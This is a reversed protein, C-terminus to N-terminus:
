DGNKNRITVDPRRYKRKRTWKKSEKRLTYICDEDLHLINKVIYFISYGDEYYYKVDDVPLTALKDEHEKQHRKKNTEGMKKFGEQMNYKKNNEIELKMALRDNEDLPINQKGLKVLHCNKIKSRPLGFYIEGTMINEYYNRRGASRADVVWKPQGNKWANKESLLKKTKESHKHGKFLPGGGGGPSINYGNEVTDLESIWFKEYEGLENRDNTEYLQIPEIHFKDSGYKDMAKYLKTQHNYKGARYDELSRLHAKWRVSLQQNTMGVYLKDNVDNVIKYITGM